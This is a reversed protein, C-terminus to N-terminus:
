QWAITHMATEKRGEDYNFSNTRKIWEEPVPWVFVKRLLVYNTDIYTARPSAPPKTFVFNGTTAGRFEFVFEKELYLRLLDWCEPNKGVISVNTCLIYYPAPRNRKRESVRLPFAYLGFTGKVDICGCIDYSDVDATNGPVSIVWGRPNPIGMAKAIAFETMTGNVEIIITPLESYHTNSNGNSMRRRMAVEVCYAQEEVTLTIRQGATLCVGDKPTM